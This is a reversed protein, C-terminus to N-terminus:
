FIDRKNEPGYRKHPHIRKESIKYASIFHCTNDQFVPISSCGQRWWNALTVMLLGDCSIVRLNGYFFVMSNTM